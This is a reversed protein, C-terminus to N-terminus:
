YIFQVSDTSTDSYTNVCTVPLNSSNYTYVSNYNTAFGTDTMSLINNFSSDFDYVDEFLKNYGTINNLPNIKNDYTYTASYTGMNVDNINESILNGNLFTLVNTSDLTTQTTLNGVYKEITITGNANYTYFYKSGTSFNYNLSLKSTLKGESNYTYTDKDLLNGISTFYETKTILDGTYTYTEYLGDEIYNIKVLKNGNYTYEHTEVDGNDTYIIKKVLGSSTEVIPETITPETEDSSCSSVLLTFVSLLAIIKKM